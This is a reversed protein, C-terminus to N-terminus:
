TPSRATSSFAAPGPWAAPSRPSTRLLRGTRLAMFRDKYYTNLFINLDQPSLMGRRFSRSLRARRPSAQSALIKIEKLGGLREYAYSVLEAMHARIAEHGLDSLTKFASSM